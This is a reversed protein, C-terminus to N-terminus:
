TVTGLLAEMPRHGTVTVTKAVFKVQQMLTVGNSMRSM